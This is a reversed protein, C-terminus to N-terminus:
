DELLIKEVTAHKEPNDCYEVIKLGLSEAKKEVGKRTKHLHVEKESFGLYSFTDYEYETLVHVYEAM